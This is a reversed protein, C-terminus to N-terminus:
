YTATSSMALHGDPTLAWTKLETSNSQHGHLNFCETDFLPAVARFDFSVLPRSAQNVAMQALLTATLPGHFVLGPYDEVQICYNRDYHIRHGNFTLASYRFLMTSTPTITQSWDANAPAPVQKPRPADPSPDERFVIDQEESVCLTGNTTHFDHTVTIFCLKGSNGTKLVINKITSTKTIQDGIIIPNEFRVRGGAWMRRPLAVPPIFGGLKPHGDRGLESLPRASHFYIWHWLPPLADGTTLDPEQDMTAQMLRAQNSHITDTVKESRGIWNSLVAEDLTPQTM